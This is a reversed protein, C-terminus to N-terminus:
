KTIGLVFKALIISSKKSGNWFVLTKYWGGKGIKLNYYIWNLYQCGIRLNDVPNKPNFRKGFNFRESFEATNASNLQMLGVDFTGNNNRNVCNTNYRSESWILGTLIYLPIGYRGSAEFILALYKPPIIRAYYERLDIDGRKIETTIPLMTTIETAQNPM